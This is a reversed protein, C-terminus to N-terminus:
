EKEEYNELYDLVLKMSKVHNQMVEGKTATTEDILWVSIDMITSFLDTMVANVVDANNKGVGRSNKFLYDHAAEFIGTKNKRM